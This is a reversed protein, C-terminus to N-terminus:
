RGREGGFTNKSEQSSSSLATDRSSATRLFAVHERLKAEAVKRKELWDLGRATEGSIGMGFGFAAIDRMLREIAEDSGLPLLVAEIGRGMEGFNAAYRNQALRAQYEEVTRGAQLDFLEGRIGELEAYM